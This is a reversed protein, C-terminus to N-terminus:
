NEEPLLGFHRIKSIMLRTELPKVMFDDCGDRLCTMVMEKQSAASVMIIKAKLKDPIGKKRELERIKILVQCGDMEPMLIDLFVLDYPRWDEWAKKFASLADKGNSATDCEGMKAVMSKLLKRNSEDDDIVLVRM